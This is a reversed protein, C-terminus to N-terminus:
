LGTLVFAGWYVPHAFPRDDDAGKSPMPSMNSPEDDEGIDFFRDPSPPKAQKREAHMTGDSAPAIPAGNAPTKHETVTGSLYLDLLRGLEALDEELSVRAREMVSEARDILAGLGDEGGPTEREPITVAPSRGFSRELELVSEAFSHQLVLGEMDDGQIGGGMATGITPLGVALESLRAQEGELSGQAAASHFYNVLDARTADRLWLQAERLAAAPSKAQRLHLEFFRATLLATARDDVPLLTGLVAAAGVTMFAGPLGVFEEPTRKIDHLGSECASLVVLRPRGLKGVELLTGVSM